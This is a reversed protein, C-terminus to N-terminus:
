GSTCTTQQSGEGEEKDVGRSECSFGPFSTHDRHDIATLIKHLQVDKTVALVDDVDSKSTHATSEPHIGTAKDFLEDISVLTSTARAARTSAEQTFNAGLM